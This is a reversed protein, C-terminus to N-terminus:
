ASVRAVCSGPGDPVRVGARCGALWVPECMASGSSRALRCAAILSSVSSMVSNYNSYAPGITPNLPVGPNPPLPLMPDSPNGNSVFTSPNDTINGLTAYDPNVVQKPTTGPDSGFSVLSIHADCDNNMITFFNQAAAIADSIPHRQAQAASQYAAYYGAKPTVGWTSYDVGAATAIAVSEFNGRA